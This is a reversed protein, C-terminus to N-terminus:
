RRWRDGRGTRRRSRFPGRLIPVLFCLHLPSRSCLCGRCPFICRSRSIYCPCVSLYNFAHVLNKKYSRTNSLTKVFDFAAVPALIIGKPTSQANPPIELVDRTIAATISLRTRKNVTRINQIRSVISFGENTTEYGQYM